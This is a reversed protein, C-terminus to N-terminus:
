PLLVPEPVGTPGGPGGLDPAYGWCLVPGAATSGLSGLIVCTTDGGAYVRSVGSLSPGGDVDIVTFVGAEPLGQTGNGLQGANNGGFCRVHGAADLACTWGDGSSIQAVGADALPVVVNAASTVQATGREFASDDGWCYVQQASDLMCGHVYGLSIQRPPLAAGASALTTGAGTNFATPYGGGLTENQTDFGWCTIGAEGGACTFGGWGRALVGGPFSVGPVPLAVPSYDIGAETQTGTPQGLQRDPDFGWCVVSGDARLACTANFSGGLAVAQIPTGQGDIVPTPTLHLLTDSPAGSGLQGGGNVGLCWVGGKTDLICVTRANVVIRSPAAGADAPLQFQKPVVNAAPGWCLVSGSERIACAMDSGISLDVADNLYPSAEPAADVVTADVTADPGSDKAAAEIPAGDSSAGGESPGGEGPAGADGASSAEEESSAEPAAESPADATATGDSSADGSTAM